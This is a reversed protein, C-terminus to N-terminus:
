TRDCMLGKIYLIDNHSIGPYLRYNYKISLMLQNMKKVYFCLM